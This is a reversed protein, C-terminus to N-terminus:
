NIAYIPTIPDHWLMTKEFSDGKLHSRRPPTRFGYLSLWPPLKRLSYTKTM